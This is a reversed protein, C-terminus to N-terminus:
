IGRNPKQRKYFPKPQWLSPPKNAAYGREGCGCVCKRIHGDPLSCTHDKGEANWEGKCIEQSM